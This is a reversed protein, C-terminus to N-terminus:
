LHWSVKFMERVLQRKLDTHGLDDDSDVSTISDVCTNTPVLIIEMSSYMVMVITTKAVVMTSMGPAMAILIICVLVGIM